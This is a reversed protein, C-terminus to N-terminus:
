PIVRRLLARFCQQRIGFRNARVARTVRSKLAAAQAGRAVHWRVNDAPNKLLAAIRDRAAAALGPAGLLLVDAPLADAPVAAHRSWQFYSTKRGSAPLSDHFDASYGSVAARAM